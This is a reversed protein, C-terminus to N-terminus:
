PTLSSLTIPSGILCNCEPETTDFTSWDPSSKSLLFNTACFSPIENAVNYLLNFKQYKLIFDYFKIKM